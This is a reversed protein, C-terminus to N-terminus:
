PRVGTGYTDHGGGGHVNVGLEVSVQTFGAAVMAAHLEAPTVNQYWTRDDPNDSGMGHVPRGPGACTFIARGGPALCRYANAVIDRWRPTHEFVEACIALDFGYRARAGEVGPPSWTAADAVADVGRGAEADVGYWWWGPCALDRLRPGFVERSGFEIVSLEDRFRGETFLELQRGIYEYAEAHM